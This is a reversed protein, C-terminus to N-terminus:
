LAGPVGLSLELTARASRSSGSPRAPGPCGVPGVRRRREGPFVADLLWWRLVDGNRHSRLCGRAARSLRGYSRNCARGALVFGSRPELRMPPFIPLRMQVAADRRATISSSCPRIEREQCGSAVVLAPPGPRFAPSRMNRSTWCSHSSVPICEAYRQALCGVVDVPVDGSGRASEILVDRKLWLWGTPRFFLRTHPNMHVLCLLFAEGPIPLPRQGASKTAPAPNSGAVEPNHASRRGEGGDRSDGTM